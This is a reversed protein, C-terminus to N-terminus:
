GLNQLKKEIDTLERELRDMESSRRAASEMVIAPKEAAVAPKKVAPLEGFEPKPFEAKLHMILRSIEATHEKLKLMAEKKENRVSRVAEYGKLSQIISKVSELLAKRIENPNEIGVYFLNEGKKKM